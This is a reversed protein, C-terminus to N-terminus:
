VREREREREVREREGSEREREMRGREREREVRGRGRERETAFLAVTEKKRECHLSLLEVSARFITKLTEAFSGSGASCIQYLM